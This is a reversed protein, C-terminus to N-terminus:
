VSRREVNDWLFIPIKHCLSPSLPIIHVRYYYLLVRLLVSLQLGSKSHALGQNHIYLLYPHLLYTSYTNFCAQLM